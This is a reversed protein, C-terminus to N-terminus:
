ASGASVSYTTPPAASSSTNMPIWLAQSVTVYMVM